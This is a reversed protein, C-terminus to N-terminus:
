GQKGCQELGAQDHEKLMGICPSQSSIVTLRKRLPLSQGMCQKARDLLQNAVWCNVNLAGCIFPAFIIVPNIILIHTELQYM